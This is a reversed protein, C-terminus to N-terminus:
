GRSVAAAAEAAAAEEQRRREAEASRKEAAEAASAQLIAHEQADALQREAAQMRQAAAACEARAAELDAHSRARADALARINSSMSDLRVRWYVSEFPPKNARQLAPPQEPQLPAPM